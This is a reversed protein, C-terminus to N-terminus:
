NQKHVWLIKSHPVAGTVIEGEQSLTSTREQFVTALEQSSVAVLLGSVRIREQILTQLGGSTVVLWSQSNPIM